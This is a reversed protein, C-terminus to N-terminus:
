PKLSLKDRSGPTLRVEEAHIPDHFFLKIFGGQRVTKLPLDIRAVGGSFVIEGPEAVLTGQTPSLPPAKAAWRVHVDRLSGVDESELEVYGGLVKRGLFGGKDLRARYTVTAGQGMSVLVSAGPSTIEGATEKVFVTFYHKKRQARRLVWGNNDETERRSVEHRASVPDSADTAFTDHRVCIVALDAGAPWRWSLRILDSANRAVLDEVDKVSTIVAAKGLVATGSVVSIPVFYMRGHAHLTAQARGTGTTSVPDGYKAAASLPIVLGPTYAPIKARQRIQVVAPPPPPTWTCVVMEQELRARLDMVPRPPAVPTADVETGGSVIKRGRHVPDAYLVVIRYSVQKGNTLGTDVASDGSTAVRRGEGRRPAQAGETRWVEVGHAGAPARWGLSVQGDGAAVGLETVEAVYVHPGSLAAERSHIGGRDTYVAYFWPTGSGVSPDDLRTAPVRGIAEGDVPSAPAGGAKRVVQYEVAGRTPAVKWVLSFGTGSQRILLQPPPPPPHAQLAQRALGHDRCYGMAETFCELAQDQQGKSVRQQGRDYAERAQKLGDDITRRLQQIETSVAGRGRAALKRQAEELKRQKVLEQLAQLEDRRSRIATDARRLGADADKWGPWIALADHYKRRAGDPDGTLLLRDGDQVLREVVPTNGIQCGCQTCTPDQTPADHGCKPCKRVLPKGCDEGWCHRDDPTRAIRGCYGCELVRDAPLEQVEKGVFQWKRRAALSEIYRRAKDPAVGAEGAQKLLEAMEEPTIRDDDGATAILQQMTDSDMAEIALTDEYAARGAEDKFVDKCQGALDQRATVDPTKNSKRHMALYIDDAAKRLVEPSSKKSYGPGLFEYLTSAGIFDLLKRIRRAKTKDIGAIGAPGKGAQPAKARRITFGLDKAVAAVEDRSLKGQVRKAFLALEKPELEANNVLRMTLLKRLTGRAEDKGRQQLARAESAEKRRQSADQLATRMDSLQDLARKAKLQKGPSGGSADMSWQSQKATIAKDIVPWDDIEPDLDLLVYYNDRGPM